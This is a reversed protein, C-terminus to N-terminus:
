REEIRFVPYAGAIAAFDEVPAGPPVPIHPRAGPARKVYAKIIPAREAVPVERLRVPRRRRHVLVVKGDAARTNRVWDAHEGLMSVLYHGGGFDAVVVPIRRPKGSRRGCTELTVAFAPTLGRSTVAVWANGFAKGARTPRRNRYWVRNPALFAAAATAAILVGAVVLARRVITGGRTVYPVRDVGRM